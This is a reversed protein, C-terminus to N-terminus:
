EKRGGDSGRRCRRGGGREAEDDVIGARRERGDVRGKERPREVGAREAFRLGRREAEERREHLAAERRQAGEEQADAARERVALLEGARADNM